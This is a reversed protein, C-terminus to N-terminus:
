CTCKVYSGGCAKKAWSEECSSVYVANGNTDCQVICSAGGLVNKMQSQSMKSAIDELNIKSM